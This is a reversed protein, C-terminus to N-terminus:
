MIGGQSAFNLPPVNRRPDAQALAGGLSNQDFASQMNSTREAMLDNLKSKLDDNEDELQRKQNNITEVLKM